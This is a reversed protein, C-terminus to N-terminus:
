RSGMACNHDELDEAGGPGDVLIRFPAADIREPTRGFPHMGVGVIAVRNNM